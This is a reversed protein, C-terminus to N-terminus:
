SGSIPMSDSNLIEMQAVDFNHGVFRIIIDRGDEYYSYKPGNWVEIKDRYNPCAL